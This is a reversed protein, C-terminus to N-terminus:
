SRLEKRSNREKYIIKLRSNLLSKLNRKSSYM